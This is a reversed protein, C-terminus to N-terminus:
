KEYRSAEITTLLKDYRGWNCPKQILTTKGITPERKSKQPIAYYHCVLKATDVINQNGEVFVIKSVPSSTVQNFHIHFLFSVDSKFELTQFDTDNYYSNVLM